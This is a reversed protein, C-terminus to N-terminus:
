AEANLAEREDMSQLEGRLPRLMNDGGVGFMARRLFTIGDSKPAEFPSGLSRICWCNPACGDHIHGDPLRFVHAPAAFLVEVLRGALKSNGVIVALDGPKCNM